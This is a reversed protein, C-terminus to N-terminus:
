HKFQKFPLYSLCFFSRKLFPPPLIVVHTNNPSPYKSITPLIIAIPIRVALLSFSNKIRKNKVSIHMPTYKTVGISNATAYPLNCSPLYIIKKYLPYFNKINKLFSLIIMFLGVVIFAYALTMEIIM